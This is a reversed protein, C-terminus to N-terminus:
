YSISPKKKEDEADGAPARAAETTLARNYLGM